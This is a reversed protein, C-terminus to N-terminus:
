LGNSNETNFCYNQDDENDVITSLVIGILERNSTGIHIVTLKAHPESDKFLHQAELSSPAAIVAKDMYIENYPVDTRQLLYLNM